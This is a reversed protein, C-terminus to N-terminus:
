REEDYEPESYVEEERIDKIKKELDIIEDNPPSEREAWNMNKTRIMQKPIEKKGNSAKCEDCDHGVWYKGMSKGCTDCTTM